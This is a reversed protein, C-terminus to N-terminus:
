KLTETEVRMNYNTLTIVFDHPIPSGQEVLLIRLRSNVEHTGVFALWRRFHEPLNTVLFIFPAGHRNHFMPTAATPHVAM